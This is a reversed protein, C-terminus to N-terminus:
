HFHQHFTKLVQFSIPNTSIYNIPNSQSQVNIPNKEKDIGLKFTIFSCTDTYRGWSSQSDRCSGPEYNHLLKEPLEGRFINIQARCSKQIFFVLEVM